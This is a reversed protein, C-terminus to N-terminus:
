THSEETKEAILFKIEIGQESFMREHETLINPTYGSGHLDRTLFRVAFGCEELYRISDNFLGDDDTKFHIEGGPVLFERYKMLQKPHTLRKKKYTPKPWPNCFNIYIREVADKEGLILHIREIDQATLAVNGVSREAGCFAAEVNRKAVGLIDSKLDIALFNVDPRQLALEAIFVGRGCGLELHLPQRAPFWEHWRGRMAQPEDIFFPCAALEPRAWPKRRIRM